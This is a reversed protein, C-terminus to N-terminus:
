LVQRNRELEPSTAIFILPRQPSRASKGFIDVFGLYAQLCVQMMDFADEWGPAQSKAQSGQGRWGGQWSMPSLVLALKSSAYAKQGSYKRTM